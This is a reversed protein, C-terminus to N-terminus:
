TGDHRTANLFVDYRTGRNRARTTMRRLGSQNLALLVVKPVYPGNPGAVAFDPGRQSTWKPGEFLDPQRYYAAALKVTARQLKTWQWAQVDTVVVKRGTSTDVPRMGLLEDIMDETDQILANATVDPLVTQDM